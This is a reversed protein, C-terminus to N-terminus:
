GSREREENVTRRRLDAEMSLEDEQDEGKEEGKDKKAPPRGRKKPVAAQEALQRKREARVHRQDQLPFNQAMSLYPM